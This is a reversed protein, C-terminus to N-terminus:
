EHGNEGEHKIDVWHYSTWGGDVILNNGTIYGAQDSAIFLCADAIEEPRALRGAPIRSLYREPDALGSRISDEVMKTQTVGPSVANVRIRHEAWEAALIQTMALVATKSCSYALRGPIRSVTNISTMNIINGGGQEAMHKGFTQCCYFVGSLMLGLSAEWAEETMDFSSMHRSIGANNILIDVHGAAAFAQEAMALVGKKSSVDGKIFTTNAIEEAAKQGEQENIDVLLVKAGKESFAKGLALGIGQAGGTILVTKDSFSM